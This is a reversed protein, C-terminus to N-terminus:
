KPITPPSVGDVEYEVRTARMVSRLKLKSTFPAKSHEIVAVLRVLTATVAGYHTKIFIVLPTKDGKTIFLIIM